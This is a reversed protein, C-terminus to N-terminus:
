SGLLSRRQMDDQTSQLPNPMLGADNLQAIRRQREESREGKWAEYGPNQKTEVKLM